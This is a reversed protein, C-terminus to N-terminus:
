DAFQSRTFEDFAEREAAEAADWEEVSDWEVVTLYEHEVDVGYRDRMREIRRLVRRLNSDSSLVVSRYGGNGRYDTPSREVWEDRVARSTFAHLEWVPEGSNSNVAVGYPWSAAYYRRRPAAPAPEDALEDVRVIAPDFRMDEATVLAPDYDAPMEVTYEGAYIMESIGAFEVLTDEHITVTARITTM